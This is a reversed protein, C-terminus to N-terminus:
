ARSRTVIGTNPNTTSKFEEMTKEKRTQTMNVSRIISTSSENELPAVLQPIGGAM